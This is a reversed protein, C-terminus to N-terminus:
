RMMKKFNLLLKLSKTPNLIFEQSSLPVDLFDSYGPVELASKADLKKFGMEWDSFERQAQEQQLLALFGHHRPDLKIKSVLGLVADKPGELLQMFNGDKYLLMGTIDLKHNNERAKKLLEILAEDSFLESASSVYVLLYMPFNFNNLKSKPIIAMM